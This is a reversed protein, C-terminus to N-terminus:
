IDQLAVLFREAFLRRLPKFASQGGESGLIFNTTAQYGHWQEDSMMGLERQTWAGEVARFYQVLLMRFREQETDKLEPYSRLGRFYVSCLESDNVIGSLWSDTAEATRAVALIRTAKEANRIQSALYFITLVVVAAGVLEAVAGVADWNM